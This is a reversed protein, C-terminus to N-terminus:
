NDWWGEGEKLPTVGLHDQPEMWTGGNAAAMAHIHEEASVHGPKAAAAANAKLRLQDYKERFTPMSLVNSRWFPDAQCWAILRAARDHERRDKDIMLRAATRWASTITPRKSGNAEIHDALLTCLAEVDPRLAASDPRSLHHNTSLSPEEQGASRAPQHQPIEGSTTERRRRSRGTTISQVQQDSSTASDAAPSASGAALDAAPEGEGAALDAPLGHPGALQYRDSTRTGDRRRRSQRAILGSDELGALHERVSRVSQETEEAILVQSPFCSWEEDARDALAMLVAKRGCGGAVQERAWKTADTSM